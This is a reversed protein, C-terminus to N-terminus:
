VTSAGEGLRHLADLDRATDVDFAGEPWAVRAVNVAGRLLASAGRAPDIASLERFRAKPFLAPVGLVGAYASAVSSDPSAALWAQVLADLCRADLRPQDCVALVLADHERAIAWEAAARISAGMGDRWDYSAVIEAGSGLLDAEVLSAYAGVVAVVADCMSARAASVARRVLTDGRFVVLQKPQGLRSSSGAALVACGIRSRKM